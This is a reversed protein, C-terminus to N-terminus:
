LVKTASEPQHYVVTGGGIFLNLYNRGKGFCFKKTSLTKLSLDSALYADIEDFNEYM